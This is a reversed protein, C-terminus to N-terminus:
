SVGIKILNGKLIEIQFFYRDGPTFAIDPPSASVELHVKSALERSSKSLQATRQSRSDRVPTKPTGTSSTPASPAVTATPARQDDRHAPSTGGIVDATDAAADLTEAAAAAHEASLKRRRADLVDTVAENLLNQAAVDAAKDQTVDSSAAAAAAAATPSEVRDFQEVAEAASKILSVLESQSVDDLLSEDADQAVVM